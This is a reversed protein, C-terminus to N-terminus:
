GNTAMQYTTRPHVFAAGDKNHKHISLTQAFATRKCIVRASLTWRLTLTDSYSQDGTQSTQILQNWYM